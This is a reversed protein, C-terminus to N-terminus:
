FAVSATVYLVGSQSKINALSDPAVVLDAYSIDLNVKGRRTRLGIATGGLTGASIGQDPSGWVRGVDFAVYPELNGFIKSFKTNKMAPMPASLEARYSASRNGFLVASDVGVISFPGGLSHQETSFLLDDSWQSYLANRFIFQQGAMEFARVYNLSVTAKKFQGKPSGTPATNDNFAGFLKLGQNYGISASAQGGWLQRAHSLNLGAVSLSRSSVDILNGLIFSQTDKWTIDGTLTTKSIQNRHLVRSAYLRASTSNGSTDLSSVAGAIQSRYKNYSGSFGFTWYGYPIEIGATLTDGNPRGSMFAFPHKEMSRQYSLTLSDNLGFLDDAGFRLSSQYEGTSQSGLNDLHLSAHWPRGARRTVSLVSGGNESGAGIEMRADVSRLRGMQELGQEIDRLNLPKGILGPFATNRHKGVSKEDQNILIDELKGEVVVVDLTGDSIDQQPLYARSTVYGKKIYTFTVTELVSNIQALGLCQHEFQSLVTQLRDPRILSVGSVVIKRVDICREQASKEAIAPATLRPASPAEPTQQSQRQAQERQIQQAQQAALDVATQAYASSGIICICFALASNKM